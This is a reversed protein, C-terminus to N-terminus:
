EYNYNGLLNWQGALNEDRQNVFTYSEGVSHKVRYPVSTARNPRYTWWAYVDYNDPQPLVAYWTFSATDDNSYFSTGSYSNLGNSNYWAGSSSTTDRNGVIVEVSQALAASSALIWGLLIVGLPM